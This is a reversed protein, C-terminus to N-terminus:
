PLPWAGTYFVFALLAVRYENAFGKHIDEVQTVAYLRGSSSPCEVADTAYTTGYLFSYWRVDTHKPLRLVVPMMQQSLPVIKGTASQTVQWNGQYINPPVYLQCMPSLSAAGAPLAVPYNGNWTIGGHWIKCQLNFNPLTLTMPLVGKTISYNVLRYM